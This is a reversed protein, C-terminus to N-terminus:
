PFISLLCNMELNDGKCHICVYMATTERQKDFAMVNEHGLFQGKQMIQVPLNHSHQKINENCYLEVTYLRTSCLM